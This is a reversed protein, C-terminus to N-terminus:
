LQAQPMEQRPKVASNLQQTQAKTPPQIQPNTPTPAQFWSPPSAATNPYVGNTIFSAGPILVRLM